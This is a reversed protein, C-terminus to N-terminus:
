NLIESFTDFECFDARAPRNPALYWIRTWLDVSSSLFILESSPFSLIIFKHHTEHFIYDLNEWLIPNYQFFFAFNLWISTHMALNGFYGMDIGGCQLVYETCLVSRLFNTGIFSLFQNCHFIFALFAWINELNLLTSLCYHIWLLFISGLTM